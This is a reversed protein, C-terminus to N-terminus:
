EYDIVEARDGAIKHGSKIVHETMASGISMRRRWTGITSRWASRFTGCRRRSTCVTVSDCEICDVKYIAVRLEKKRQNNTQHLLGCHYRFTVPIFMLKTPDFSPKNNRQWDGNTRKNFANHIFDCLIRTMLFNLTMNWLSQLSLRM